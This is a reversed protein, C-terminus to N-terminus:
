AYVITAMEAICDELFSQQDILAQIKPDTSEKSPTTPVPIERYLRNNAVDVKLLGEGNPIDEMDIEMYPRNMLSKPIFECLVAGNNPLEIIYM